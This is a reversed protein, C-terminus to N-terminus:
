CRVSSRRSWNRGSLETGGSNLARVRYTYSVRQSASSDTWDWYRSSFTQLRDAASGLFDWSRTVFNGRQDHRREVRWGAPASADGTNQTHWYMMINSGSCWPVSIGPKNLQAEATGAGVFTMFVLIVIVLLLVRKSVLM